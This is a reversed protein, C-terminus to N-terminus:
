SHVRHNLWTTISREVFSPRLVAAPSKLLLCSPNIPVNFGSLEMYKPVQPGKFLPTRNEWLDIMLGYPSQGDLVPIQVYRFHGPDHTPNTPVPYTPLFFHSLNPPNPYWRTISRLKPFDGNNFM